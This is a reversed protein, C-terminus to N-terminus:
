EAVIADLPPQSAPSSPIHSANDRADAFIEAFVPGCRPIARFSPQTVCQFHMPPACAAMDNLYPCVRM